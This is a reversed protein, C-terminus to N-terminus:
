VGLPMSGFLAAYRGIEEGDDVNAWWGDTLLWDFEEPLYDNEPTCPRIRRDAVTCPVSDLRDVWGDGPAPLVLQVVAHQAEGADDEDVILLLAARNEFPLGAAWWRQGDDDAGEVIPRAPFRRGAAEIWESSRDWRVDLTM